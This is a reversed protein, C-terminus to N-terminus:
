STQSGSTAALAARTGALLHAARAAPDPFAGRLAASRVEMSLPVSDAFLDVFELAPLEGSGPISRHDLADEILERTSWGVPEAPADCWQVYPFLAPDAARIDDYTTGSRFVHILDVLIGANPQDALRVVEIADALTKVSTFRMFEICVRIGAPEALECLAALREATADPEPFASITLINRAGLEAAADVLQDGCDGDPGMRVVEMDVAVLGTDALRDALRRTVTTNWSAPDYWIGTAPWGADAAAEVFAVPDAALEPTVGAAISVLHTM